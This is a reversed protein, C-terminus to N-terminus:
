RGMRVRRDALTGVRRHHFRDASMSSKAMGVPPLRGVKQTKSAEFHRCPKASTVSGAGIGEASEWRRGRPVVGHQRDRSARARCTSFGGACSCGQLGALRHGRAGRIAVNGMM